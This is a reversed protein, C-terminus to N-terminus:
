PLKRRAVGSRSANEADIAQEVETFVEFWVLKTVNCKQTFGSFTGSKHELVRRELDSTVGVYMTRSYSAMIYVYYERMENSWNAEVQRIRGDRHFKQVEFRM